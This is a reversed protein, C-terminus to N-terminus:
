SGGLTVVISNAAPDVNYTSEPLLTLILTSESSPVTAAARSRPVIPTIIITATRRHAPITVRGSLTRYDKGGLATGSIRYPVTIAQAGAPADLAITLQVPRRAADHIERAPLLSATPLAPNPAIIVLGPPPLPAIIIPDGGNGSDGSPTANPDISTVNYSFTRAAGSVVVNSLTVTYNEDAAANVLNGPLEWVLTNDGVFITAGNVGSQYQPTEVTVSQAVGNKTVALTANSFDANPYSFSWRGFVLSAPVFGAPPWATFEPASAPRSGFPAMIYIASAGWDGGNGVPPVVGIGTTRQGPYMLWRRHGVATNNSEAEAMFRTVADPGEDGDSDIRVNGHAAADAAAPTWWLWDSTPDHSLQRNAAFLLAAQQCSSDLSPDTLLDGPLGSMARFYNIRRLTAARYDPNLDGAVGASLSGTWGVAPISGAGYYDRYLASVAQRDTPDVAPVPASQQAHGLTSSIALTLASWTALLLARAGGDSRVGCVSLLPWRPMPGSDYPLLQFHALRFLACLM